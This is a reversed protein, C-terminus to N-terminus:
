GAEEPPRQPPGHAAPGEQAPPATSGRPTAAPDTTGSSRMGEGATASRQKREDPEAADDSDAASTTRGEYPPIPAGIEREDASKDSGTTMASRGDRRPWRRSRSGHDLLECM